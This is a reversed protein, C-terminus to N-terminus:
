LAVRISMHGANLVIRTRSQARYLKTSDDDIQKLGFIATPVKLSSLNDLTVM